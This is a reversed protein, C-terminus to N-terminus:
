FHRNGLILLQCLGLMEPLENILAAIGRDCAKALKAHGGVIDSHGVITVRKGTVSVGTSDIAKVVALATCPGAMTKRTMAVM